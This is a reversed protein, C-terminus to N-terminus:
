HRVFSVTSGLGRGGALVQTKVVCDTGMSDYVAGFDDINKVVKFKPVAVGFQSFVKIDGVYNRAM